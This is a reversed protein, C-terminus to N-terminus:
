VVQAATAGGQGAARLCIAEIAAEDLAEGERQWRQLDDAECGAAALLGQAHENASQLSPAYVIRTRRMFALSAAGVRAADACHGLAALVVALASSAQFIGRRRMGPMGELLTQRADEIRGSLAQAMMLHRSLLPTNALASGGLRAVVLRAQAICDDYRGTLYFYRCLESESDLLLRDEGPTQLMLAHMNRHLAGAAELEGQAALIWAQAHMRMRMGLLGPARSSAELELMLPLLAQAMRWEGAFTLLVAKRTLVLFRRQNMRQARYFQEARDAADMADALPVRLVCGLMALGTWFRGARHPAVSADIRQRLSMMFEAAEVVLFQSELVPEVSGALGVALDLEGAESCAWALAARANDLEPVALGSFEVHSLTGQEGRRAEDLREFFECVVRAHREIWADTEGAEALKELAYARTTELLRYRPLETAQAPDAIVLSKDVLGGLADLVAWEDTGDDRALGQALELAFGGVFLGLRRLVVQETSSLLAHSWDLAARLTQHRRMATRSGGTLVRFREDLKEFLGHVGLLRVRAAALEIALPLGDLRRCIHAVAQMNDPSLAFRADASRAREVFLRVAGFQGAQDPPMDAPPLALPGLKFLAEGPVNLLEQSTALVHVGSAHSVIREALAGAADVLHECNDLVLLLSMSALVAVLHDATSGSEPRTIRLAQALQQPLQAPDSVTTLDVWWVGHRWRGQLAQAAAQAAVQALATKGMGSAGVVTVLRQAQVQALLAPLETERGLLPARHAVLNGPALAAPLPSAAQAGAQPSAGGGAGELAAMFRYGRGPITAIVSPGLLRRLTSVQVHLNSEEVVQGHWVIDLLEHKPVLRDRREILALLLEFARAGLAVPVRDILLQYAAPLVEAAGFRFTVPM